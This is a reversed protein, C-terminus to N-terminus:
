VAAEELVAPASLGDGLPAGLTNAEGEVEAGGAVGVVTTGVREGRGAGEVSAGNGPAGRPPPM